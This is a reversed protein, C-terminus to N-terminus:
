FFNRNRESQLDDLLAIPRATRFFWDGAIFFRFIWRGDSYEFGARYYLCVVDPDGAAPPCVYYHVVGNRGYERRKCGADIIDMLLQLHEPDRFTAIGEEITHDGGFSSRFYGEMLEGLAEPDNDLIASYVQSLTLIFAWEREDEDDDQGLVAPSTGVLLLFAVITICTSVRLRWLAPISKADM